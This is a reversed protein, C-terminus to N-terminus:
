EYKVPECFGMLEGVKLRFNAFDFKRIEQPVCKEKKLIAELGNLLDVPNDPDVLIGLTGDMLADRSGDKNGGLVPLGAAAAELFVFGFGEGTSPMAFADALNYHDLKEDESVGGVFIVRELVGSVAALEALKPRLAGEGAILYVLDPFHTLLKPLLVIIKDQGKYRGALSGLTLLVRKGELCYRKVLYHPKTGISYQEIHIANPILRIKHMAMGSWSMFRDRTYRSIAIVFDVNALAWRRVRSSGAMPLKVTRNSQWAEIGYIELVVSAGTIKKLIVAVPLLNIHGCLIVAPHLSIGQRLVGVFYSIPSAQLPMETLKAPLSLDMQSCHRSFSVVKSVSPLTVLADFLDRNYQAIGGIGGYSDPMLALIKISM